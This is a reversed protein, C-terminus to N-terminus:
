FEDPLKLDEPLNMGATLEKIKGRSEKEIKNTADNVASLVLEEILEKNTMDPDDSDILGSGILVKQVHHRGNMHVTVSEPDVGAKGIVILDALQKQADQMKEQMKQAEKMLNNLNAKIDNEM